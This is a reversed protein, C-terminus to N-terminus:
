SNPFASNDATNESVYPSTGTLAVLTEVYMRGSKGGLTPNVSAGSSATAFSGTFTIGSGLGTGGTSNSYTFTLNSVPTGSAFLGPNTITINSNAVSASTLNAVAAVIQAYTNMSTSTVNVSNSVAYTGAGGATGTLQALVQTGAAVGTGTILNGVAITGTVSSATLIGNAIVGTFAALSTTTATVTVKDGVVYGSPTGTATVNALHIQHQYTLSTVSTNTFGAGPYTVAVSAINAGATGAVTNTTITGLANVTGGSV